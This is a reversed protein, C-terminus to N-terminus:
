WYDFEARAGRPKKRITQVRQGMFPGTTRPKLIRLHRRSTRAAQAATDARMSDRLSQDCPISPRAPRLESSMQLPRQITNAGTNCDIISSTKSSEPGSEKDFFGPTAIPEIDLSM